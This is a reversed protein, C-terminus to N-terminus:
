SDYLRTYSVEGDHLTDNFGGITLIGNDVGYCIGFM